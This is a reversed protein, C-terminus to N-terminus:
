HRRWSGETTHESCDAVLSRLEPPYDMPVM